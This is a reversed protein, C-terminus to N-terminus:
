MVAMVIVAFAAGVCLFVIRDVWSDRRLKREYDSRAKEYTTM